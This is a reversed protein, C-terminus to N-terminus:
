RAASRRYRGAVVAPIDRRTLGIDALQHADMDLLARELERRDQWARVYAVLRGVLGPRHTHDDNSAAQRGAAVVRHPAMVDGSPRIPADPWALFPASWVHGLTSAQRLASGEGRRDFQNLM